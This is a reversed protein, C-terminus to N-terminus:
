GPHGRQESNQFSPKVRGNKPSFFIPSFRNQDPRTQDQRIQDNRTQDRPKNIKTEKDM